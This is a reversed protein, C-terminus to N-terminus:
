ATPCNLAALSCRISQDAEKRGVIAAKEWREIEKQLNDNILRGCEIVTQTRAPDTDLSERDVWRLYAEGIVGGSAIGILCPAEPLVYPPCQAVKVAAPNRSDQAPLTSRYGDLGSM